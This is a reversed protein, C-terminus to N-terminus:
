LYLKWFWLFNTNTIRKAKETCEVEKRRFLLTM